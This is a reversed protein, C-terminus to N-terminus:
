HQYEEKRFFSYICNKNQSFETNLAMWNRITSVHYEKWKDYNHKMHTVLEPM